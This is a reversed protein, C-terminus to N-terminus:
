NKPLIKDMKNVVNRGVLTSVSDTKEFVLSKNFLLNYLYLGAASTGVGLLMSTWKILREKRREKKEELKQELEREHYVEDNAERRDSLKVDEEFKERELESREQDLHAKHLKCIAEVAESHEKSGQNLTKVNELEREIEKELLESNLAM